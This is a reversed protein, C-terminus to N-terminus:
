WIRLSSSAEAWAQRLTRYPTITSTNMPKRGPPQTEPRRFSPLRRAPHSSLFFTSPSLVFHYLNFVDGDPKATDNRYVVDGDMYLGPLDGTQDAWVTGTFGRQEVGDVTYLLGRLTMDIKLALLNGVAPAVLETLGADGSGVLLDVQKQTHTHQVIDHDALVAPDGISQEAGQEVGGGHTTLLLSGPLFADAAQFHHAHGVFLVQGRTGQGIALLSQDLNGASQGCLRLHQQQILGCGAHVGCLLNCQVFDDAIDPIHANRNQDDLM